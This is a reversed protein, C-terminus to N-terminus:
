RLACGKECVTKLEAICVTSINTGPNTKDVLCIKAANGHAEIIETISWGIGYTCIEKGDHGIVRYRLNQTM